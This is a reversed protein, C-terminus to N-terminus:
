EPLNSIIRVEVTDGQNVIAKGTGRVEIRENTVIMTDQEKFIAKRVTVKATKDIIEGLPCQLIVTTEGHEEPTKGQPKEIRLVKAQIIREM